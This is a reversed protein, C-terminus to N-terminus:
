QVRTEAYENLLCCGLGWGGIPSWKPMRVRALVAADGTLPIIHKADGSRPRNQPPTYIYQLIQPVSGRALRGRPVLSRHCIATRKANDNPPSEEHVATVRGGVFHHFYSPKTNFTWHYCFDSRTTVSTPSVYISLNLPFSLRWRHYRHFFAMTRPSLFFKGQSSSFPFCRPSLNSYIFSVAYM